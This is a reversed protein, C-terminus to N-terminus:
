VPNDAANRDRWGAALAAVEAEHTTMNRHTVDHLIDGFANAELVAHRAPGPRVAVDVGIHLTDPFQGAVTRCSDLLSGWADPAMRERLISPDGRRNLLHLNTIPGKSMRLVAHCPEQGITVVRLDVTHGDLGAVEALRDPNSIFKRYDVVRLPFLGFRELAREYLGVRRDRRDALVIFARERLAAAASNSPYPLTGTCKVM